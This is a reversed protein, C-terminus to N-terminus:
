LPSLGKDRVFKKSSYFIGTGNVITLNVKFNRDFVVMDADKGPAIIGKEHTVGLVRAPNYSAMKVASVISIGTYKVMNEVAQMMNLNSGAFTHESIYYVGKKLKGRYNDLAAVSDTVLVIKEEPKSQALLKLLAWHVHKGDAIVETMLRQDILMATIIRPDRASLGGMSNFVHTGYNAGADVATLTQEFSANSHGLAAVVGNKKLLKILPIAGDLECALTIIRIKKEAYGLLNKLWIRDPKLIHKKPQAGCMKKSIFPGELHLGLCKAGSLKLSPLSKAVSGIRKYNSEAHLSLLFSTTGYKAQSQSIKYPDGHIHLDIFGPALYAKHINIKDAKVAPFRKGRGCRVIKRGKCLVWADDIIRDKTILSANYILVPQKKLNM